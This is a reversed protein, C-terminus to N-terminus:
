KKRTKLQKNINNYWIYAKDILAKIDANIKHKIPTKPHLGYQSLINDLEKQEPQKLNHQYLYSAAITLDKRIM